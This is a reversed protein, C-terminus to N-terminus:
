ATERSRKKQEGNSSLEVVNKIGAIKGSLLDQYAEIPYRGTILSRVAEPWKEMFIGLSRIAGEYAAAGANVTGLIVQNKLVLNRMILSTDVQIPAKRGPVGTFIFLANIGLFKLTEFALGSAGTAEYVVNIRGMERAVDPLGYNQASLYRAGMARAINAKKSAPGERSYVYIEYGELALAMCGLLGVPGAGLVLARHPHGSKASLHKIDGPLREQVEKLQAFAKEAITLPEVLVAVERLAVPVKFLYKEEDIVKEALFGDMGKIGREV